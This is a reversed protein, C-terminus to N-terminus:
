GVVAIIVAGATVLVSGAVRGRMGAREGLVLVALGTSILTSTSSVAIVYGAPALRLAAFVSAVHLAFAVGAAAMLVTWRAWADPVAGGGGRGALLPLACGTAIASALTVSAAWPLAGVEAIGFKHIITTMTWCVAAGLAYWSARSRALARIPALWPEGRELGVAYVGAAVLGIGVAAAATPIEGLVVVAGLTVFVPILGLIPQVLSLDGARLALAMLVMGGIEPPLVLGLARVYGPTVGPWRGSVVVAGLLLLGAVVRFVVTSLVVEATYRLSRKLIVASWSFSFAAALAFLLWM